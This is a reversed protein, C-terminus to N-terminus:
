RQEVPRWMLSMQLRHLSMDSAVGSYPSVYEGFYYDSRLTTSPTLRRSLGASYLDSSFGRGFRAGAGFDTRSFAIGANAGWPSFRPQYAWMLNAQATSRSGFGMPDGVQRRASLNFQHAGTTYGLLAQATWTTTDALDFRSSSEDFHIMGVGAGVEYMWHRSLAQSLSVTPNQSTSKVLTSDTFRTAHAFSIRTRSSLRYDATVHARNTRTYDLYRPGSSGPRQHDGLLTNSAANGGLHFTLRRSYAYSARVGASVSFIRLLERELGGPDDVVPSGTLIAAFEDDTFEGALVREMLEDFSAPAEIPRTVSPRMWSQELGVNGANANGQLSLRPTLDRSSNFSFRHDTTTWEPIRSRQVHSPTYSFQTLSRRGNRSYNIVASAGLDYDAGLQINRLSFPGNGLGRPLSNSSYGGFITASQLTLGPVVSLVEASQSFGPDFEGANTTPIFRSPNLANTVSVNPNTSTLAGAAAARSIASSFAARRRPSSSDAEEQDRTFARLSRGVIAAEEEARVEAAESQRVGAEGRHPATGAETTAPISRIGVARQSEGGLEQALLVRAADSQSASFASVSVLEGPNSRKLERPTEREAAIPTLRGTRVADAELPEAALISVGVVLSIALVSRRAIRNARGWGNRPKRTIEAKKAM